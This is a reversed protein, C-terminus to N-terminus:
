SGMLVKQQATVAAAFEPGYRALLKEQLESEASYGKETNSFVTARAVLRAYPEGARYLSQLECELYAIWCTRLYDGYPTTKSSGIDLITNPQFFPPPKQNLM